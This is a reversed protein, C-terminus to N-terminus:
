MFNPTHLEAIARACDSSFGASEPRKRRNDYMTQLLERFAAHGRRVGRPDTGGGAVIVLADAIPALVGAASSMTASRGRVAAEIRAYVSADHAVHEM